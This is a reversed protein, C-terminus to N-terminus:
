QDPQEAAFCTQVTASVPLETTRLEVTFRQEFRDAPGIVVDRTGVQAHSQNLADISCIVTMNQPKAVDFTFETVEADIIKFGVDKGRITPVTWVSWAIYVVALLIALAGLTIAFKRGGPTLTGSRGAPPASALIIEEEEEYEDTYYENSV